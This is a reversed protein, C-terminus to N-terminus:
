VDARLLVRDPLRRRESNAWGNWRAVAALSVRDLFPLWAWQAPRRGVDGAPRAWGGGAVRLPIVM